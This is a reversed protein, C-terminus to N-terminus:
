EPSKRHPFAGTSISAAAEGGLRAGAEGLADHQRTYVSRLTVLHYNAQNSACGIASIKLIDIYLAKGNGVLKKSGLTPLREVAGGGIRTSRGSCRDSGVSIRLIYM